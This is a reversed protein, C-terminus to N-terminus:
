CTYSGETNTCAANKDCANLNSDSCEDVDECKRNKPMYGTPCSVNPSGGSKGLSLFM